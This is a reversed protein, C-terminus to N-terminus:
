KNKIKLVVHKIYKRNYTYTIHVIGDTTQIVAPYSFEGTPENELQYVDRWNKGDQSLAVNLCNRGNMWESGSKMPNYVLLQLGSTLTVGDIGSNPNLLSTRQLPSWSRGEDMSWSELIYNQNSRCLAQIKNSPYVLLTPQIAKAVNSTDVPVIQWNAGNDDSREVFAQWRTATEISTPNLLTGNALRISKNRIPGLRGNLAISKSWTVGNDVSHMVMGKWERPSHGTKYYLDITHLNIRCLVPNWCAKQHAPATDNCAMLWPSTWGSKYKVSAWICVDDAGEYSGGFWVVMVKGNSLEVMTSAHCQGFLTDSFIPEQELLVVKQAFSVAPILLLFLVFRLKFLYKVGLSM